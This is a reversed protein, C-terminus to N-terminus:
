YAVENAYFPPVTMGCHYTKMQMSVVVGAADPWIWMITLTCTPLDGGTGTTMQEPDYPM